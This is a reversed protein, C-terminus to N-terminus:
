AGYLLSRGSQLDFFHAHATDVAVTVADGVRVTSKVGFRGNLSVRRATADEQLHSLVSVDVDEAIELLEDTVVPDGSLELQVQREV